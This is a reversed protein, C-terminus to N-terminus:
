AAETLRQQNTTRRHARAAAIRRAREERVEKPNGPHWTVPTVYGLAANLREDDCHRVLSAITAQAEPYDGGCEDCSEQRVTGDFREAIWGSIAKTQKVIAIVQAKTEAPVRALEDLNLDIKISM